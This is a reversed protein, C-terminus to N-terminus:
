CIERTVCPFWFGSTYIGKLKQFNKSLVHICSFQPPLKSLFHTRTELFIFATQLKKIEQDMPNGPKGYLTKKMSSGTSFFLENLSKQIFDVQCNQSRISNSHM